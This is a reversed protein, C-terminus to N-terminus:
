MNFLHNFLVNHYSSASNMVFLPGIPPWDTNIDNVTINVEVVVVAWCGEGSLLVFALKVTEFWIYTVWHLARLDLIGKFPVYCWRWACVIWKCCNLNEQLSMWRVCSTNIHTCTAESTLNKVLDFYVDAPYWCTCSEINLM